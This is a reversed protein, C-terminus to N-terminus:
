LLVTQLNLEQFPETTDTIELFSPEFRVGDAQLQYRGQPLAELVYVGAGNTISFIAEADNDPVAEVKAGALPNGDPASIVGIVTYSPQFPIPVPTYSGAVVDVALASMETKWNLPFGAPDLDLRYRGSPLRLLVRDDLITPETAQIPKDNLIFLLDTAETYYSEDPDHVDNANLDFFPQLMIGGRGRLQEAQQDGAVIGRQTNLRSTLEIGFTAEDSTLSIDRYQARLLFGPVAATEVSAVVGSGHTGVGLGLTVGWDRNGEADRRDSRYRWGTTLLSNAPATQRDHGILIDHGSQSFGGRGSLSYRLESSLGSENGSQSFGFGRWRQRWNWRLDQQETLSARVYTAHTPRQWAWQAGAEYKGRTMYKGFVTWAPSLRWNMDVQELLDDRRFSINLGPLPQLSLNATFEAATEDTGSLFHASVELPLSDPKFFIEGLGQWGGDYISGIGVTTSESLGWRLGVGGRVETLNDLRATDSAQAGLGLAITTATAGIPLQGSLISFNVERTEPLASLRGDSFLQLQYQGFGNQPKIPVRDFRFTGSSDVLIEDILFNQFGQTLQVLTGPEAEGVITRDVQSTQLRQQPNFGQGRASSPPTFGQRQITTMGWFDQNRHSWFPPHSGVAYDASPTERLYQAENLSWTTLDNARGQNIRAYWSGGFATGVAQLDGLLYAQGEASGAFRSHQELASVTFSPPAVSDLGDLLISTERFDGHRAPQRLNFAIAYEIIDFTVVDGLLTHLQEVSLVEGLEPDNKIDNASIQTVLYPSYVELRDDQLPTLSLSLADKLKTLPILWQDFNIAQSGDEAGRVLASFVATRGDVMIGVPLLDFPQIDDSPQPLEQSLLASQDSSLDQTLLRKQSSLLHQVPLLEQVVSMEQAILSQQADALESVLPFTQPYSVEQADSLQHVLPFAQESSFARQPSGVQELSFEQTSSLDSITPFEQASTISQTSSLQEVTPFEQVPALEQVSSNRQDSLSTHVIPFTHVPSYEQVTLTEQVSAPAQLSSLEQAIPEEQPFSLEQVTPFSYVSPAEQTPSLEQVPSFDQVHSAARELSTSQITLPAQSPVQEISLEQLVPSIQAIEANLCTSSQRSEDCEFFLAETSFDSNQTAIAAHIDASAPNVVPSNTVSLVDLM